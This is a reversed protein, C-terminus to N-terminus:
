SIAQNCQLTNIVQVFEPSQNGGIIVNLVRLTTSTASVVAGLQFIDIQCM